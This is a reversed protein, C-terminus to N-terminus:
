IEIIEILCPDNKEFSWLLGSKRLFEPRIIHFAHAVKFLKCTETTSVIKPNRNTLPNGATDFIWDVSPIVSTYSNFKTEKAFSIAKKLTDLEIFPHCPNFILIYDTRVKTYHEQRIKHEVDGKKISEPNRWMIEINPYKKCKDALEEEAVAFYRYDVFDMHSLKELAIDIITTGGFNRVLKRPVRTSLTRGMIMASITSM